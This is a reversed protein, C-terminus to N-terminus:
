DPNSDIWDHLIHHAITFRPPFIFHSMDGRYARIVDEKSVWKAERIEHPDPTFDRTRAEAKFGMMLQAPFPWPQSFLYTINKLSVGLEEKMERRVTEEPTEGPSMFGAPNSFFGDPFNHGAVLLCDDGQTILVIVVPFIPPFMHHGCSPCDRALGGKIAHSPQGCKSCFGYTDHFDILSKARGLAALESSAIHAAQNRLNDFQAPPTWPNEQPVTAAFLPGRMDRGIFVLSDAPIYRPHCHFADGHNNFAPEGQHFIYCRAAPDSKADALQEDSREEECFDLEHGAFPMAAANRM